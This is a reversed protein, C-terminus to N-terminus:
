FFDGVWSKMRYLVRTVSNAKEVDLPTQARHDFASLLLGYGTAYIPNDLSEPLVHGTKPAGVRVPIQLIAHAIPELGSLLSSGGTLVLGTSMLSSLKSHDIERKVIRLLEQARPQLVCALQTPSVLQVENDYIKKVAILKAGDHQQYIGFEKKIREAEQLTTQLGIALDNTFHNGAIPVVFTQRIGGNQYIAFDSTGGGIDLIGVGLEREDSTLVSRASALQELVVDHVKIGARQCCSMLNQVSSVSGTIIHVHAELRIGAMGVPNQVREHGDICFYQPLAHLIQQGEPIAIAQAAELVHTVDSDRVVSHKIPVAGYSNFSRIHSGSIGITALEIPYGSVLEAEQVAARISEVTKTIDVVVGKKLGHSPAKGVGIIEVTEDIKKRAVIVCVKTTGIDISVVIDSFVKAM